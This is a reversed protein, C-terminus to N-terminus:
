FVPKGLSEHTQHQGLGIGSTHTLPGLVFTSVDSSFAVQGAHRASSAISDSADEDRATGAISGRNTDGDTVQHRGTSIVSRLSVTSGTFQNLADHHYSGAM